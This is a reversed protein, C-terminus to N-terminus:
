QVASPSDSPKSVEQVVEGAEDGDILNIVDTQSLIGCLKNNEDVIPLRRIENEHMIELCDDLTMDFDGTVVEKTMCDYATLNMPNLGQGLARCVIDRDTIVGTINKQDMSTVIPIEGCEYEVMLKAIDVLGTDPTACAVNTSMIDKLSKMNVGKKILNNEHL